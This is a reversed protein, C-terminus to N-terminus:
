EYRLAEMPDVRTARRAPIYCALFAVTALALSIAVFTVPDTASVGYLLSSMVRTLAFAAGLGLAIGAATLAMGQGVVLKLVDSERAGLAIRIGIEHTRQAVSYNMVGYIGVAALLLAVGAFVGLLLAYFRPQAVSESFIEDMTKVNTVPQDKDVTSVARRVATIVAAPDTKTRVVLQTSLWPYQLHPVYMEVGVEAGLSMQKTDRAVGVVEHSVPEDMMYHKIRIRRGVAEEGAFFRRAMTENIVAVPPADKSDRETFERGAVLTIGLTRFYGPSVSGYYAEQKDDAAAERGEVFFPFNLGFGALPPGSSAAASEVGPIQAIQELTSQYLQARQEDKLYKQSHPPSLNMVLLNQPDFGPEVRQLHLLSKVLLGAGALLLLTLAIESVVLLGRLRQLRLSASSGRGADKLSEYVNTSSAKLAPLLGFILGTLVSIGFAYFLVATDIRSEELRPFRWDTPVLKTIADVGWLALLVGAAGGILALLLNEVLLQRILRGRTAGLATRIAIERHRATARALMLNAVNACAILLVFGVAGLLILLSRRVHAIGQEHLPILRASWGQNTEPHQEGLRGTIVNMESQAQELTVGPRLRAAVTFYRSERAKLEGSDMFVPTWVEAFSPQKFEPPMVGVVTTSKGGLTLTKGVIQPDGGFRRQWLRHSLVVVRNGRLVNEEPLITRGLLPRVGYVEFFDDSVRAGVFQEPAEGGSLNVSGGSYAAIAEFSDAQAKWDLFDAPSAGSLADGGKKVNVAGVSVLREPDPFPLSRLLVANVVSFIATNAGIGLALAVVAVLTFGPSKWLMRFGYRVDQFLNGMM